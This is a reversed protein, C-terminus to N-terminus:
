LGYSAFVNKYASQYGCNIANKIANTTKTIKWGKKTKKLKFNITVEEWDYDEYKLHHKVRTAIYKQIEESSLNPYYILHTIMDELAPYVAPYLDPYEIAVRVTANRGSAIVKVIRYSFERKNYKRCVAAMYTNNVFVGAKSPDVFCNAMTKANYKKTAKLFKTMLAKAAKQNATMEKKATAAVRTSGEASVALPCVMLMILLLIMIKKM